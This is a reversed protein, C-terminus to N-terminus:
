DIASGWTLPSQDVIPRATRDLCIVSRQADGKLSFWPPRGRTEM